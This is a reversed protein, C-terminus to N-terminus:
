PRPPYERLSPRLQYGLAESRDIRDWFFRGYSLSQSGTAHAIDIGRRLLSVIDCLRWNMRCTANRRLAVSGNRMCLCTGLTAPAFSTLPRRHCSSSIDLDVKITSEDRRVVLTTTLTGYRSGKCTVDDVDFPSLDLVFSLFMVMNRVATEIADVNVDLVIDLDRWPKGSLHSRVFGGYM